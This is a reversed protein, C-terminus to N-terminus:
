SGSKSPSLITTRSSASGLFRLQNERLFLSEVATFTDRGGVVEEYTGDWLFVLEVLEASSSRGGRSDVGVIDDGETGRDAVGVTSIGAGSLGKDSGAVGSAVIGLYAPNSRLAILATM